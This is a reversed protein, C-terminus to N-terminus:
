ITTVKSTEILIVGGGALFFDELIASTINSWHFCLLRYQTSPQIRLLRDIRATDNLIYMIYM